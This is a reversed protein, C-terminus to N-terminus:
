SFACSRADYAFLCIGIRDKTFRAWPWRNSIRFCKFLRQDGLKQCNECKPAWDFGATDDCIWRLSHIHM